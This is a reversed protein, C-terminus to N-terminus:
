ARLLHPDLIVTGSNGPNNERKDDAPLIIKFFPKVDRKGWYDINKNIQVKKESLQINGYDKTNRSILWKISEQTM